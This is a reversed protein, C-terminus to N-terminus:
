RGLVMDEIMKGVVWICMVMKININDQGMKKIEFGLEKTNRAMLMCMLGREMNKTKGGNEQTDM